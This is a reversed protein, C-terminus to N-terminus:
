RNHKQASSMLGKGSMCCQLDTM